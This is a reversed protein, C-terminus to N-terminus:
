IKTNSFLIFFVFNCIRNIKPDENAKFEVEYRFTKYSKKLRICVCFFQVELM